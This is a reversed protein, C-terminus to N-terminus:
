CAPPVQHDDMTDLEYEPWSWGQKEDLLTPAAPVEWLSSAVGFGDEFYEPLWEGGIDEGAASVAAPVECACGEEPLNLKAAAGYLRRAADDYARAAELSTNFTGLWVRSGRKPERIEAVWRGWTRQRVGRYTCLANDPGGKGRMCGKRSRRAAKKPPDGGATEATNDM